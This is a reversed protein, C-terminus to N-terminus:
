FKESPLYDERFNGCIDTLQRHELTSVKYPYYYKQVKIFQEMTLGPYKLLENVNKIISKISISEGSQIRKAMGANKLVYAIDYLVNLKKQVEEFM